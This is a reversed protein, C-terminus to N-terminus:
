GRNPPSDFAAADPPLTRAWVVVCVNAAGARRLARVCAEVTAGSTIVDDILLIRLGRVASRPVIADDARRRRGAAALRKAVLRGRCRVRLVSRLPLGRRRAVSRALERAPTFGRKLTLLPHSPVPVVLDCTRGIDHIAVLRELARALRRFLETRRGLKARLLFLRAHDDYVVAARVEDALM